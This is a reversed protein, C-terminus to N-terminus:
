DFWKYIDAAGGTFDTGRMRCWETLIGTNYAADHAGRGEGGAYMDEMTWESVWPQIHRLRSKSWLRYLAPLMLLLRYAAPDLKNNEDKALFAARAVM